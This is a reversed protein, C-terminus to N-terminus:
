LLNSFIKLINTYNITNILLLVYFIEKRKNRREIKPYFFLGLIYGIILQNIKKLKYKKSKLIIKVFRKLMTRHYKLVGKIGQRRATCYGNRCAIKFRKIRNKDVENTFVDIINDKMKHQVVATTVLYNDKTIKSIRSTFEIDDGWIFYEKQPYGVKEIYSMNLFLSVFSASKIKILNTSFSCITAVSSQSLFTHNNMYCLEDGLFALSSLFGFCSNLKTVSNLFEELTNNNPITDDDM